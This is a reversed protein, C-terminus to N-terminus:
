SGNLNNLMNGANREINILEAAIKLYIKHFIELLQKNQDRLANFVQKANRTSEALILYENDILNHINSLYDTIINNTPEIFNDNFYKIDSNDGPHENQFKTMLEQLKKGTETKGRQHIILTKGFSSYASKFYSEFNERLEYDNKVAREMIKPLESLELLLYDISSIIETFTRVSETSSNFHNTYAILFEDLNNSEAIRKFDNTSVITLEHFNIDDKTVSKAFELLYQIQLQTLKIAGKVLFSFYKLINERDERKAKDEKKKDSKGQMYFIALATGTGILAGIINIIFDKLFGQITSNESGCTECTQNLILQLITM